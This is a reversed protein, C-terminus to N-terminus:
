EPCVGDRNIDFFDDSVGASFDTLEAFDPIRGTTSSSLEAVPLIGVGPNFPNISSPMPMTVKVKIEAGPCYLPPEGNPGTVEIKIKGDTAIAQEVESRHREGIESVIADAAAARASADAQSQDLAQVYARAAAASTVQTLNKRAPVQVLSLIIVFAPFVLLAIGFVWETAIFGRENRKTDNQPKASSDRTFMDRVNLDKALEPHCTTPEPHRPRCESHCPFPFFSSM